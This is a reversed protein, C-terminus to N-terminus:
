TKMSKYIVSMLTSCLIRPPDASAPVEKFLCYLGMSGGGLYRRYVVNVDFTQFFPTPGDPDVFVLPM